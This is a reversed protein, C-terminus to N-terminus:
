PWILGRDHSGGKIPLSVFSFYLLYFLIFTLSWKCTLILGNYYVIYCDIRLYWIIDFVVNQDISLKQYVDIVIKNCRVM